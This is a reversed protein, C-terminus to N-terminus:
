GRGVLRGALWWALPAAALAGLVDWSYHAHQVLVLVAVVGTGLLLLRRRGGPGVALALLLVTATHGSFFLDKTISTASAYFWRDVLPDHLVLLQPPAEWPLLALTGLRLLHLLLYGWLARLLRPPRPVLGALGLVLCAYIVLFTATSVDRAPLARLLADPPQYGPRAQIWAFFRPLAAALGVLGALAAGLRARFAPRAWAQRWAARVSVLSTPRTFM